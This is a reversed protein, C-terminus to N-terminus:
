SESFAEALMEEPVFEHIDVSSLVTEFFQRAQDM